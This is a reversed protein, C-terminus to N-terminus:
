AGKPTLQPWVPDFDSEEMTYLFPGPVKVVKMAGDVLATIVLYRDTKHVQIDALPIGTKHAIYKQVGASTRVQFAPQGNKTQYPHQWPLLKAV